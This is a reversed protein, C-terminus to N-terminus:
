RWGPDPPGRSKGVNEGTVKCSQRDPGLLALEKLSESAPFLLNLSLSTRRFRAGAEKGM